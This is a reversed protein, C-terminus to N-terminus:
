TREVVIGAEDRDWTASTLGRAKLSAYQVRQTDTKPLEEVVEIYRPVAFYALRDRCWDIVSAMDVEADPQPVIAVMVEDEGLESPVGFAASEKVSPHRNIVSEVEWSSINEGRRRMSEKRRGRYYFFGDADVEALDGSHFWGDVNATETLEPNKHYHTLRGKSHRFVLEGVVGPPAQSGSDDLVMFEVGPVPKGMSGVRGAMNLLNGPADVMGFWEILRVGFRSEFQTWREDAPAGASLVARVPNDADDGREPQKLLIPIIGGLANFEVANYRRCEDWFRSASFREGLAFVGDVLMSGIASVVLANGHYLPLPTYMTEGPQVGSADLLLQLASFDYATSVVGKPPGTTGSTYMIGVGGTAEPPLSDETDPASLLDDVTHNITSDRRGGLSVLVKLDPCSNAAAAVVDRLDDSFVAAVSDSDRLIHELVTGRQSTNVPVSLAGAFLIGFHVWLFEPRNPLLIAVRDGPKVGREILGNAVRQAGSLVDSWTYSEDRWRLWVNDPHALTRDRILQEIESRQRTM